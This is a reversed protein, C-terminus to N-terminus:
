RVRRSILSVLGVRVQMFSAACESDRTLRAVFSLLSHAVAFHTIGKHLLSTVLVLLRNADPPSWM